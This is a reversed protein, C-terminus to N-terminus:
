CPLGYVSLFAGLDLSNVTGNGDMDGGTNAPVSLGFNTLLVGLDVTNRANDGTFDGACPPPPAQVSFTYSADPTAPTNGYGNNAVVKWFYTGGESLTGPTLFLSNTSVQISFIPSSFNSSDDLTVTYTDANASAGWTLQPTTTPILANNAPSVLSFAGPPPPPVNAFVDVTISDTASMGNSDTVKLTVTRLGATAYIIQPQAGSTEFTGDGDLDWAYSSITAGAETVRSNVDGIFYCRLGQGVRKNVGAIAQPPAKATGVRVTLDYLQVTQNANPGVDYIRAYYTGAALTGANLSETSGTPASASTQLVTTGNSAVLDINLNGAQPANVQTTNGSCGSQQAGIAENLGTPAASIVVTQSAGLTFKFWDASTGSFGTSGNTSLDLAIFSRLTPTTMNGLDKANAASNNGAYMDGYNRQAGRKDDSQMQSYALSIFPEMLKTASCPIPHIMACGHGHEHTCTNRLFIYNNSSSGFNAAWDDADIVMDSGSSTFNNYALVNSQGDLSISGIRVDGRNANRGPTTTMATSDDAVETYTLGSHRRWNAFCQRLYERGRDESGVGFALGLKSGLVNSKPSGFGDGSIGWPTGDNPFSFTIQAPQARGASATVGGNGSWVTSDTFYRETPSLSLWSAPLLQTTAILRDLQEPPTNPDYCMPSRALRDMIEVRTCEPDPTSQVYREIAENLREGAAAVVPDHGCTPAAAQVVGRRVTQEANSEALMPSVLCCLATASLLNMKTRNSSIM